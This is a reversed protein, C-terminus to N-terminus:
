AIVEPFENWERGDLLRGARKKGVNFSLYSSHGDVMEWSGTSGDFCVTETQVTCTRGYAEDLNSQRDEEGTAAKVNPKYFQMYESEPMESIPKWEGWQKFFFPVQAAHCQDRVSRAWNACGASVKTCGTVPNWVEDTWQISTKGM